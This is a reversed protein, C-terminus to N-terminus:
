QKGQQSESPISLFSEILNEGQQDLQAGQVWRASEFPGCLVLAKKGIDKGGSGGGGLVWACVGKVVLSYSTFGESTARELEVGKVTLSVAEGLHHAQPPPVVRHATAAAPWVRWSSALSFIVSLQQLSATVDVVQLALGLCTPVFAGVGGAAQSHYTLTVRPVSVCRALADHGLPSILTVFHIVPNFQTCLDVETSSLEVSAHFRQSIDETANGGYMPMIINATLSGVRLCLADMVQLHSPASSQNGPLQPVSPLAAFHLNSTVCLLIHSVTVNFTTEAVPDGIM